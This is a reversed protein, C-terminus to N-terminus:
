GDTSVTVAEWARIEDDLAALKNRVLRLADSGLLLHAPPHDAAIVALMARAAKAPDGPQKGSKEERARRIPDFLADYDAISRPTRAMSRGAWDTRFSGPAVATVAIGFPALEKGLTESIGELAFKSGCYYAIGPMTIHGGMSTINLIRGRRRERMFPVVAKMMAVAGFVNVDFQRRLEGLPAEELIGEHGYGANNVLVDVPGVNAEIDAVVGDIRAFDTVDLVRAVAAQASLAEFDRAAQASRVTGVVTHGAALAEQALARGFGSSVGTILMINGSAM